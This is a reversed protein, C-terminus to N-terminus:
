KKSFKLDRNTLGFSQLPTGSYSITIIQDRLTKSENVKCQLSTTSGFDVGREELFSVGIQCDSTFWISSTEVINLLCVFM